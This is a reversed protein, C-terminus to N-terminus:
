SGKVYVRQSLPSGPTPDEIIPTPLDSLYARVAEEAAYVDQDWPMSPRRSSIPSPIAERSRPGNSRNRFIIPTKRLDAAPVPQLHHVFDRCAPRARRGDRILAEAPQDPLAVLVETGEPLTVGFPLAVVGGSKIMGRYVM